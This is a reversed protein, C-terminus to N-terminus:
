QNFISKKLHFRSKNNLIYKCVGKSLFFQVQFNFIVSIGFFSSFYLSIFSFKGDIAFVQLMPHEKIMKPKPVLDGDITHM